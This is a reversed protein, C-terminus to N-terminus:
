RSRKTAPKTKTIVKHRPMFLLDYGLVDLISILTSIRIEIDQEDEIKSLHLYSLHTRKALESRTLGSKVRLDKLISCLVGNNVSDRELTQAHAKTSPKTKLEKKM